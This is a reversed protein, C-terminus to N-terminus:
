CRFRQRRFNHALFMIVDRAAYLPGLERLLGRRANDAIWESFYHLRSVYGARVGGRYRMREIEHTFASWRARPVAAARAIALSSEVLTVCDFGTLYATGLWFSFLATHLHWELEQLRTSGMGPLQYGFKRTLVDFVIVVTCVLFLWGAAMSVRYLAREIAASAALLGEM